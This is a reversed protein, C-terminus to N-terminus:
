TKYESESNKIVKPLYRLIGRILVDTPRRFVVVDVFRKSYGYLVQM